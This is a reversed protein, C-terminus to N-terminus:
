IGILAKRILSGVSKIADWALGDRVTNVGWKSYIIKGEIKQPKDELEDIQHSLRGMEKGAFELWEGLKSDHIKYREKMMKMASRLESKIEFFDTRLQNAEKFFELSSMQHPNYIKGQQLNIGNFRKTRNPDLEWWNKNYDLGYSAMNTQIKHIHEAMGLHNYDILDKDSRWILSYNECNAEAIFPFEWRGFEAYYFSPKEEGNTKRNSCWSCPNNLDFKGALIKRKDPNHNTCRFGNINTILAM